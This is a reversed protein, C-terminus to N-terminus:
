LNVRVSSRALCRNRASRRYTQSRSAFGSTLFAQKKRDPRVPQVFQIPLVGAQPLDVALREVMDFFLIEAPTDLLNIGLGARIPQAYARRFDLLGCGVRFALHRPHELPIDHVRHPKRQAAARQLAEIKLYVASRCQTPKIAPGLARRVRTPAIPMDILDGFPAHLFRRFREILIIEPQGIVGTM